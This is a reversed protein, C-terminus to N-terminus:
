NRIIIYAMYIIFLILLIIGDKKNFDSKDYALVYTIIVCVLMIIVDIIMVPTVAIPTIFTTLGIIMFINFICSGLVNGLALDTNKHYAATISTILEPLSTGISVITLGVLTESMGLSLAIEKASAVVVDSGYLIFVLGLVIYLIIRMNSLHVHGVPMDKNKHKIKYIIAGVYACIILIFIFGELSSIVRGSLIFILFLVSGIVLFLYDQKLISYDLKIKCIVSTAGIVALLNFINSGVVNSIAIANSHELASTISVATEPASTGFAVITLGIIMAPVKLKTALDSAGEVFLDAGKVLLFFGVLLMIITVINM